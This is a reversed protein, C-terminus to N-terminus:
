EVTSLSKVYGAVMDKAHIAPFDEFHAMADEGVAEFNRPNGKYAGCEEIWRQY